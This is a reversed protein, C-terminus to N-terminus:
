PLSDRNEHALSGDRKVEDVGAPPFLGVIDEQAVFDRVFFNLSAHLHCSCCDGLRTGKFTPLVVLNGELACNRWKSLFLQLSPKYGAQACRSFDGFMDDKPSCQM